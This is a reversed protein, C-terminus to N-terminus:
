PRDRVESIHLYADVYLRNEVAFAAGPKARFMGNPGLAFEVDDGVRVHLKGAALSCIRTARPDAAVAVTAGPHVVQVRFSMNHDIPVMQNSTLYANSFAVNESQEFGPRGTNRVIRGPAVEWDEMELQEATPRMHGPTMLAASQQHNHEHYHHHHQQQGRPPRTDLLVETTTTEAIAEKVAIRESRRAFSSEGSHDEVDVDDDDDTVDNVAAKMKTTTTTTTTTARMATDTTRAGRSGPSPSETGKAGNAAGNYRQQRPPSRPQQQQQQQGHPQPPGRQGSRDTETAARGRVRKLFDKSKEHHDELTLGELRSASGSRLYKELRDRDVNPFIQDFRRNLKDKLDCQSQSSHYFCNACCEVAAMLLCPAQHSVVVCGAYPGQGERCMRCPVASYDGTLHVLLSTIDRPTADFWPDQAIWAKNWHIDRVRPLLLFPRVYGAPPPGDRADTRVLFPSIHKWLATSDSPLPAPLDAFKPQSPHRQRADNGGDAGPTHGPDSRSGKANDNRTAPAERGTSPTALPELEAPSRRIQSTVIPRRGVHEGTESLTGDGNDNFTKNRHLAPCIWPYGPYTSKEYGDPLIVGYSTGGDDLPSKAYDRGSHSVPIEGEFLMRNFPKGVPTGNKSQDATTTRQSPRTEFAQSTTRPVSAPTPQSAPIPLPTPVSRTPEAPPSSSAFATRAMAAAVVAGVRPVAMPEGASGPGPRRQTVVRAGFKDTQYSAASKKNIISVTGDLNDNLLVSRHGRSFHHGMSTLSPFLLRCSRLPCIWPTAPDKFKTYGDPIIAGLTSELGKGDDWKNYPRGSPANRIAAPPAEEAHRRRAAALATRVSVGEFESVDSPEEDNGSRAHGNARGTSQSDDVDNENDDDSESKSDDEAEAEANAENKSRGDRLWRGTGATKSEVSHPAAGHVPTSVPGSKTIGDGDVTHVLSVLQPPPQAAIDVSIRPRKPDRPGENGAAGDGVSDSADGAGRERLRKEAPQSRLRTAPPSISPVRRDAPTAGANTSAAVAASQEGEGASSGNLSAWSSSSSWSRVEDKDGNEDGNGDEDGDGDDDDSLLTRNLRRRRELARALVDERGRQLIPSPPLRPPPAVATAKPVSPTSVVPLASASVVRRNSDYVQQNHGHGTGPPDGGSGSGSGSSGNPRLYNIASPGYLLAADPKGTRKMKYVPRAASAAGPSAGAAASGPVAPIPVPTEAVSRPPHLTGNTTTSAQPTATRTETRSADIAGYAAPRSSPTAMMKAEPTPYPSAAAKKHAPGEHNDNAAAADRRKPKQAELVDHGPPSKTAKDVTIDGVATVVRELADGLAADTVVTATTPPLRVPDPLLESTFGPVSGSLGNPRPLGNYIVYEFPNLVSSPRPLKKQRQTQAKKRLEEQKQQKQQQQQQKQHQKQAHASQPQGDEAFPVESAM